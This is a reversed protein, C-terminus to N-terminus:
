TSHEGASAASRTAFGAVAVSSSSLNPYFL